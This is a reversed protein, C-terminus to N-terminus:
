SGSGASARSSPRLRPSPPVRSGVCRLSGELGEGGDGVRGGAGVGWSGVGGTELGKVGGVKLEGRVLGPHCDRTARGLARAAAAAPPAARAVRDRQVLQVVLKTLRGLCRTSVQASKIRASLCLVALRAAALHVRAARTAGGGGRRGGWGVGGAGRRGGRGGRGRGAEGWSKWGCTLKPTPPNPNASSPRAPPAVGCRQTKATAGAVTGTGTDKATGKTSGAGMASIAPVPTLGGGSPMSAGATPAAPLLPQSRPQSPPPPPPPQPPAAAAHGVDAPATVIVTGLQVTAPSMPLLPALIASTCARWACAYWAHAPRMLSRRPPAYACTRRPVARRARACRRERTTRGCASGRTGGAVDGRTARGCRGRRGCGDGAMELWRWGDGAM